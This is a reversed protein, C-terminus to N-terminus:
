LAPLDSRCSHGPFEDWEGEGALGCLFNGSAQSVPAYPSHGDKKVVLNGQCVLATLSEVTFLRPGNEGSHGEFRLVKGLTFM